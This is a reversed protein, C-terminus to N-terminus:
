TFNITAVRNPTHLLASGAGLSCSNRLHQQNILSYTKELLRTLPQESAGSRRTLTESCDLLTLQHQNNFNLELFMYLRFLLILFFLYLLTFRLQIPEGHQPKSERIQSKLNM